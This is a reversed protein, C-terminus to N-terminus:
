FEIVYMYYPHKIFFLLQYYGIKKIHQHRKRKLENSFGKLGYRNIYKSCRSQKWGIIKASNGINGECQRLAQIIKAHLKMDSPQKYVTPKCSLVFSQLKHSCIYNSLNKSTVGLEDATNKTSGLNTRFANKIEEMPITNLKRSM